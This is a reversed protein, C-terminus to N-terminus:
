CNNFWKMICHFIIIHIDEIKQMDNVPVLLINKAVNKIKGGDFGTLACTEANQENAYEIAKIVNKSNGSGSVGIVLDNKNLYNKLQQAFIDEYSMDNAYAMMSPINDNLCIIKFKKGNKLTVGKNLDCTIHSCTSASGGNGFLFIQSNNDLTSQFLNIFTKFQDESIIKFINTLSDFYEKIFGTKYLDSM